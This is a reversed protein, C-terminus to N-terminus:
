LAAMQNVSGTIVKVVGNSEVTGEIIRQSQMNKIRVVDGKKGDQLARGQTSILMIPTQIRMTVMSGRFVLRPFRVDRSRLFNGSNQSQRLEMGILDSINTIANKGLHQEKVWAWEFDQESLIAGKKIHQHVVPVKRKIIVRGSISHHRPGNEAQAVIDGRFRKNRMDYTFNILKFKPAYDAPLAMSFSRNDFQIEPAVNQNNQELKLNELVIPQIDELTLTNAARTLLAHDMYSKADWGLRYQKALRTLVRIDYTVSQGASPAIAIERDIDKPVGKFVDSLRIAPNTLEVVPRLTVPTKAHVPLSLVCFTLVLCLKSLFSHM